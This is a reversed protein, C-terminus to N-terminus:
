MDVTENKEGLWDGEFYIVDMELSQWGTGYIESFYKDAEDFCTFGDRKAWSEQTTDRQREIVLGGRLKIVDTVIATGILEDGEWSRYVCELIDDTKVSSAKRTTQSQEGNKLLLVHQPYKFYLKM